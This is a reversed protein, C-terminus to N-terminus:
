GPKSKRNRTALTSNAASTASWGISWWPSEALAKQKAIEEMELLLFTPKGFVLVKTSPKYIYQIFNLDFDITV